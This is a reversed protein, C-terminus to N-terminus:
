KTKASIPHIAEPTLLLVGHVMRDPFKDAAWTTLENFLEGSTQYDVSGKIQWGELGQWAVLAVDPNSLLNTVTKNMFYNVLLIKGDIVRITSVPVVNLGEPGSTSLAKSPAELIFDIIEQDLTNTTSM